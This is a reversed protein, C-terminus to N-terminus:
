FYKITSADNNSNCLAHLLVSSLHNLQDEPPLVKTFYMFNKVQFTASLVGLFKFFNINSADSNSNSSPHPLASHSHNSSGELPVSGKPFVYFEKRPDNSDIHENTIAINSLLLM